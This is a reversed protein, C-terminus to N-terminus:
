LCSLHPELRWPRSGWTLKKKRIKKKKVLYSDLPLSRCRSRRIAAVVM